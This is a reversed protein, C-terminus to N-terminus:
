VGKFDAQTMIMQKHFRLCSNPCSVGKLLWVCLNIPKLSLALSASVAIFFVLSCSIPVWIGKAVFQQPVNDYDKYLNGLFCTSQNSMSGRGKLFLAFVATFLDVSRWVCLVASSLDSSSETIM